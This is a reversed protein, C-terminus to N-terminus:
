DFIDTEEEKRKKEKDKKPRKKGKKGSKSPQTPQNTPMPTTSYGACQSEYIQLGDQQCTCMGTVEDKACNYQSNCHDFDCLCGPQCMGNPDESNGDIKGTCNQEVNGQACKARSGPMGLMWDVGGLQYLIRQNMYYIPGYMPCHVGIADEGTCYCAEWNGGSAAKCTQCPGATVMANCGIGQSIDLSIIKKNKALTM